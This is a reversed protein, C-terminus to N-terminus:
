LNGIGKLSLYDRRRPAADQWLTKCITSAVRTQAVDTLLAPHKGAHQRYTTATAQLDVAPSTTVFHQETSCIITALWNIIIFM